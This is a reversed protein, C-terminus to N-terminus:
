EIAVQLKEGSRSSLLLGNLVVHKSIIVLIQLRYQTVPLLLSVSGICIGAKTKTDAVGGNWLIYMSATPVCAYGNMCPLHKKCPCM